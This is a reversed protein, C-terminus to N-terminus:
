AGTIVWRRASRLDAAATRTMLLRRTALARDRVAAAAQGPLASTLRAQVGRIGVPPLLDVLTILNMGGIPSVLGSIHLAAHIGFDSVSSRRSRSWNAAIAAM